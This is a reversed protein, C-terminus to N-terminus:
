RMEGVAGIGRRKDQEVKEKLAALTKVGNELLSELSRFHDGATSGTSRRPHALGRENWLVKRQEHPKTRYYKMERVQKRLNGIQAESVYEGYALLRITQTQAATFSVHGRSATCPEGRESGCEPCSVEVAPHCLMWHGDARPVSVLYFRQKEFFVERMKARM